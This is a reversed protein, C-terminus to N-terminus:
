ADSNWLHMAAYGRWPRWAEAARRLEAPTKARSARLLGLDAAPFADPWRLARLAIYGATWDGIGPLEVLRTMTLEPDAGPELNVRGSLIARALERIANARPAAIGLRTLKGVDVAALREPAPSIRNLAASPTEVLEGFAAAMRGALTTAAAVSIRQGLIARVALEFGDFAGPVRLGPLRRVSRALRQDSSLHAVIVDPRASLDFLNRLRSLIASLASILSTSLKVALANRGAIPEVQLWGRLKGM